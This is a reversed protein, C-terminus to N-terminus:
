FDELSVSAHGTRTVRRDYRIESYVLAAESERLLSTLEAPTTFPRVRVEPDSGQAVATGSASYVLVEIGFQMQRLTELLPVGLRAWLRAPWNPHDSVLAVRYHAARAALAQWQTELDAYRSTWCDAMEEGAGCAAAVAFCFERTSDLSFPPPP